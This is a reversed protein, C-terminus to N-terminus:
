HCGAFSKNTARRVYKICFYYAYLFAQEFSYL